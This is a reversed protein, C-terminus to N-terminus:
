NVLLTTIFGSEEKEKWGFVEGQKREKPLVCFWVHFSPKSTPFLKYFGNEKNKKGNELCVLFLFKPSFSLTKSHLLLLALSSSSSTPNTSDDLDVLSEM